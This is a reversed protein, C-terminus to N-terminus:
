FGSLSCIRFRISIGNMRIQWCSNPLGTFSYAHPSFTTSISCSLSKVRLVLKRDSEDMPMMPSRSMMVLM